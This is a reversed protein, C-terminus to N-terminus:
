LLWRKYKNLIIKWSDNMEEFSLFSVSESTTSGFGTNKIGLRAITGNSSNNYFHTAIEIMVQKLDQPITDSTYGANYNVLINRDSYSKYFYAGNTLRISNDKQNIILSDPQIELDYITVPDYVSMGSDAQILQVSHIPMNDLYLTHYGSGQYWELHSMSTFDRNCYNNTFDVSASICQNISSDFETEDLNMKNFTKFDTLTILM